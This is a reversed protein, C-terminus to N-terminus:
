DSIHAYNSQIKAVTFLGYHKLGLLAPRSTWGDTRGDM